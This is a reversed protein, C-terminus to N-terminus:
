ARPSLKAIYDTLLKLAALVQTEDARRRENLRKAIQNLNVGIRRLQQMEEIDLRSLIQKRLLLARMYAAATRHNTQRYRQAAALEADNLSTRLEHRRRDSPPLPKRGAM